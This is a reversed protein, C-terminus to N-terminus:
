IPRVPWVARRASPPWVGVGFGEQADFPIVSGDRRIAAPLVHEYRGRESRGVVVFAPRLEPDHMAALISAALTSADDCDMAVTGAQTVRRLVAVPHRVLETKRPDARFRVREYLWAWLAVLVAPRELPDAGGRARQLAGARRLVDAAVARVLPADAADLAVATM